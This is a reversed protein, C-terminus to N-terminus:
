LFFIIFFYSAPLDEGYFPKVRPMKLRWIKIKQVIDGIDLVYFPDERGQSPPPSLVSVLPQTQLITQLNM